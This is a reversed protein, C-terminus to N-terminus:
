RRALWGYPIHRSKHGVEDLIQVARYPGLLGETLLQPAINQSQTRNNAIM